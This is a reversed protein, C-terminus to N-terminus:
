PHILINDLIRPTITETSESELQEKLLLCKCFFKAYERDVHESNIIERYKNPIKQPYNENMSNVARTDYIFFLDPLHFHLYKSSFSRKDLNTIKKLINQLEKHTTLIEWINNLSSNKLIKLNSDLNSNKFAPAVKTIYFNDNNIQDIKIKRREIAAAYIRGIFLTKTIIVEENLHEFHEKCLNYLIENGFDWITSKAREIKEM